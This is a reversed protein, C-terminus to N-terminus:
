GKEAKAPNLKYVKMGKTISSRSAALDGQYSRIGEGLVRDSLRWVSSRAGKNLELYGTERMATLVRTLGGPGRDFSEPMREYLWRLKFWYHGEGEERQEQQIWVEELIFECWKKLVYPNHSTDLVM